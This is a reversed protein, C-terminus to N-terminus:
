AEAADRWLRLTMRDRVARISGPLSLTPPGDERVLDALQEWKEHSMNQRPWGQAHWTALFMERLLYQPAARLSALNFTMSTRDRQAVSNDYLQDALPRLVEQAEAALRGLRLLADSVHHNYDRALLPLLEHRIRNRTYKTERNTTDQCFPQSLARLYGLIDQRRSALLPRLLTLDRSLARARPIGALGSLGTGRVIHHLITEAQDDATHATVVFRAGNAAAVEGLFRYRAHRASSENKPQGPAPDPARTSRFTLGLSRSLQEVFDAEADSELERWRHNFHAVLLNSTRPKAIAALARLLAVSDPGGSVAVVVGVNDWREPPWEEVLQAEFAHM